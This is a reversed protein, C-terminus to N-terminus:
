QKIIKTKKWTKKVLQSTNEFNGEDIWKAIEKAVNPYDIKIKSKTKLWNILVKENIKKVKTGYNLLEISIANAEQETHNKIPKVLLKKGLKLVEAPLEFGANCIVGECEKLDKLFNKRSIKKEYINLDKKNKTKGYIHFEYEKFKKLIEKLKKDDEHHLYILIKGKKTGNTQLNSKIIPPLIQQNFHHFHLGLNYDIKTFNKIFIKNLYDQKALKPVPIDHLFAYQHGIGICPINNKKAIRSSIPEFDTIILDVNKIKYKKLEKYARILKLNALTKIYDIKGNKIKFTIGHYAKYEKFLKLKKIEKPDRGSLIIDVEHGLKKLEKIVETSKTIHGNGTAQIGYLIKM